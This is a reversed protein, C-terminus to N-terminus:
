AWLKLCNCWEDCEKGKVIVKLGSRNLSKLPEFAEGDFSRDLMKIEAFKLGRQGRKILMGAIDADGVDGCQAQLTLRRLAPLLNGADSRLVALFDLDLKPADERDRIVVEELGPLQILISVLDSLVGSQYRGLRCSLMELSVLNCRLRHVFEMLSPPTSSILSNEETM